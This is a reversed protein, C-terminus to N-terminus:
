MDYDLRLKKPKALMRVLAQADLPLKKMDKVAM